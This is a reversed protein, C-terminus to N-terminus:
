GAIQLALRGDQVMKFLKRGLIEGDLTFTLEIPRGDTRDYGGQNQMRAANEAKNLVGEGEDLLYTGERPVFDLGSHAVGATTSQIQSVNALGAAIAAAAAAVGLAPGIFPIGAMANYAAVASSYTNMLAQATAFAKWAALGAAGFGKLASLNNAMGDVFTKATAFHLQQIAKEHAQQALYYLNDKQEKTAESKDIERLEDAYKKEIAFSEKAYGQLNQETLKDHLAQIKEAHKEEEAQIKALYTAHAQLRAEEKSTEFADLSNIQKLREDYERQYSEMAKDHGTLADVRMKEQLEALKEMGKISDLIADDMVFAPADTKPKSAEQPKSTHSMLADYVSTIRNADTEIGTVLSQWNGKIKERAGNLANLAASGNKEASDMVATGVDLISKRIEDVVGKSSEWAKEFDGSFFHYLIEGVKAAADAIGKFGIMVAKTSESFFNFANTLAKWDGIAADIVSSGAFIIWQGLMSFATYVGVVALALVGLIYIVTKAIGVYAGSQKQNEIMLDTFNILYPLVEKAIAKGVAGIASSMRRMNEEYKEAQKGFGESVGSTENMLAALKEKGQDLIPLAATASKTFVAQALAGKNANETYGAFKGSLELFLETTGKINGNIDKLSIGMMKFAQAQKSSSDSLAEGISKNLTKYVPVLEEFSGTTIKAAYAMKSFEEVPAAAARSLKLMSEANEISKETLAVLSAGAAAFGAIVFGTAVSAAKQWNEISDASQKFVKQSQDVAKIVVEVVNPM